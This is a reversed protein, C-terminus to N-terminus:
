YEYDPKFRYLVHRSIKCGLIVPYCQISFVNMKLTRYSPFYRNTLLSIIFLRLARGESNDSNVHDDEARRWGRNESVGGEQTYLALTGYRNRRYCHEM